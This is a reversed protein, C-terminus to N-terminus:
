RIQAHLSRLTSRRKSVLLCGSTERDLRHVLELEKGPRLQRLIEILGWSLGSGGHVALGSPKDVVLLRDDEYLVRLGWQALSHDSVRAPAADGGTRIPPIRVLDGEELRYDAKVRGKNVRVEGRRLVRYLHSKPVGKLHRLLFNDIRQGATEADVRIRSVGPAAANRSATSAVHPNLPDVGQETSM